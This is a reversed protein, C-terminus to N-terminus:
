KEQSWSIRKSNFPKLKDGKFFLVEAKGEGYFVIEMDGHRKGKLVFLQEIPEKRLLKVQWGEKSSVSFGWSANEGEILRVIVRLDFNISNAVQFSYSFDAELEVMEESLINSGYFGSDNFKPVFDTQIQHLVQSCFPALAAIKNQQEPDFGGPTMGLLDTPLHLNATFPTVFFVRNRGLKGMFLGLEFIVNDRVINLEKERTIALDDPFMVFIAFDFKELAEILNELNSKSLEFTGQSWIESHTERHLNAQIANAVALNESSSGIFINPKM